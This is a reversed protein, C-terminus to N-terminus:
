QLIFVNQEPRAMQRNGSDRPSSNLQKEHRQHVDREFDDQLLVVTGPRRVRAIIMHQPKSYAPMGIGYHRVVQSM